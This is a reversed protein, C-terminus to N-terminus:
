KINELVEEKIRQNKEQQTEEPNLIISLNENAQEQDFKVNRIKM